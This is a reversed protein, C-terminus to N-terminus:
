SKLSLKFCLITQSTLHPSGKLFSELNENEPYIAGSETLIGGAEPWIILAVACFAEGRTTVLRTAGAALGITFVELTDRTAALGVLKLGRVNLAPAGRMILWGPTFRRAFLGGTAGNFGARAVIRTCFLARCASSSGILSSGAM